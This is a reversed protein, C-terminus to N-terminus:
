KSKFCVRRSWKGFDQISNAIIKMGDCVPIDTEKYEENVTPLFYVLRGGKKLLYASMVILDAALNSLDYEEVQPNYM